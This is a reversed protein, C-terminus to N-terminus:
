NIYTKIQNFFNEVKHDLDEYIHNNFIPNMREYIDISPNGFLVCCCDRDDDYHIGIRSNKFKIYRFIGYNGNVIHYKIDRDDCLKQFKDGILVIEKLENM